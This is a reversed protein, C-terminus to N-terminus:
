IVKKQGKVLGFILLLLTQIGLAVIQAFGGTFTLYSTVWAGAISGIFCVIGGIMVNWLDLKGLLAGGASLVLVQIIGTLLGAIWFNTPAFPLLPVLLGAFLGGLGLLALTVVFNSLNM